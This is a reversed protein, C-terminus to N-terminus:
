FEKSPFLSEASSAFEPIPCVMGSNEVLSDRLTRPMTDVLKLRIWGLYCLQAAPWKEFYVRAVSFASQLIGDFLYEITSWLTIYQCSRILISFIIAQQSWLNYKSMGSDSSMNSMHFIHLPIISSHYVERVACGGMSSMFVTRPRLAILSPNSYYSKFCTDHLIRCGISQELVTSNTQFLHSICEIYESDRVWTKKVRYRNM